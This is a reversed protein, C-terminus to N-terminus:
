YSAFSAASLSTASAGGGAAAPPPPPPPSPQTANLDSAPPAPLTRQATTEYIRLFSIILYVVEAPLLPFLRRRAGEEIVSAFTNMFIFARPLLHAFGRNPSSVAVLSSASGQLLAIVHQLGPLELQLVTAERAEEAARWPHMGARIRAPQKVENERGVATQLPTCGNAALQNVDAGANLLLAVAEPNGLAAAHLPTVGYGSPQNVNAGANLLLAAAGPNRMCVAAMLPTRSHYGPQNINAGATLLLEIAGPNRSSSAAAHLPTDGNTDPQNVDAGANLLLEIAVLNRSSVAAHLPADGNIGLQNVNAGARLLILVTDVHNNAVAYHLANFGNYDQADPHAGAQLYRAVEASNGTRAADFIDAFASLSFILSLIVAFNFKM